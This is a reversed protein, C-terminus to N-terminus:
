ASDFCSLLGTIDLVRRVVPALGPRLAMRVGAAQGERLAEVLVSCGWSDVFAVSELDIVIRDPSRGIAQHVAALLASAGVLDVDGM